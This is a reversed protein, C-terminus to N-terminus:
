EETLFPKVNQRLRKSLIIMMMVKSMTNMLVITRYNECRM